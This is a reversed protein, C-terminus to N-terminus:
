VRYPNGPDATWRETNTGVLYTGCFTGLWEQARGVDRGILRLMPDLKVWLVM